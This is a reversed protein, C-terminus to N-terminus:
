IQTEELIPAQVSEDPQVKSIAKNVLNEQKLKAKSCM